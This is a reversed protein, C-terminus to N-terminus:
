TEAACWEIRPLEDPAKPLRIEIGGVDTGDVIVRQLQNRDATITSGDYWGM